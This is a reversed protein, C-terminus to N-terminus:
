RHAKGSCAHEASYYGTQQKSKKGKRKGSGCAKCFAALLAVLINFLKVFFLHRM